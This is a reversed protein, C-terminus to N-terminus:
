GSGTTAEAAQRDNRQKRQEAQAQQHGAQFEQTGSAVSTPSRDCARGRPISGAPNKQKRPQVTRTPRSLLLLHLFAYLYTEEVGGQAIALLRRPVAHVEVLLNAHRQLELRQPDINDLRAEGDGRRAIGLGDGGDRAGHLLRGDGAEGARQLLVDIGRRPREALRHMRADVGEDGRAVQVQLELELEGTLLRKVLRSAHHGVRAVLARFHFEAGLVGEARVEVEEAAHGLRDDVGAGGDDVQGVGDAVRCRILKVRHNVGYVRAHGVYMPRDQGHMAVVVEPEAHGVRQGADTGARALDLARDAADALAGAVRGELLDDHRQARAGVTEAARVVDPRLLKEASRAQEGRDGADLERGVFRDDALVGEGVLRADVLM